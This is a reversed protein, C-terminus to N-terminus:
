FYSERPPGVIAQDGEFTLPFSIGSVFGEDHIDCDVFPSSFTDEFSRPSLIKWYSEITSFFLHKDEQSVFISDFLSASSIAKNTLLHINLSMMNDDSLGLNQFQRMSYRLFRLFNFHEFSVQLYKYHPYNWPIENEKCVFPKKFIREYYSHFDKDLNQKFKMNGIVYSIFKKYLTYGLGELIPKLKPIFSVIALVSDFQSPFYNGRPWLYEAISNCKVIDINYDDKKDLLQNSLLCFLKGLYMTDGKFAPLLLDMSPIECKVWISHVYYANRYQSTIKSLPSLGFTIGEFLLFAHLLQYVEYVKFSDFIEVANVIIDNINRTIPHKRFLNCCLNIDLRIDRYQSTAIYSFIHFFAARNAISVHQNTCFGYNSLLIGKGNFWTGKGFIPHLSLITPDSSIQVVPYFAILNVKNRVKFTGRNAAPVQANINCIVSPIQPMRVTPLISVQNKLIKSISLIDINISKMIAMALKYASFYDAFALMDIAPISYSKMVLLVKSDILEIVEKIIDVSLTHAEFLGKNIFGFVSSALCDLNFDKCSLSSIWLEPSKFDIANNINSIKMNKSDNIVMNLCCGLILRKNMSSSHVGGIVYPGTPFTKYIGDLQNIAGFIPLSKYLPAVMMVKKKICGNFLSKMNSFKSLSSAFYYNVLLSHLSESPIYYGLSSFTTLVLEDILSVNINTKSLVCRRMIQLYHMSLAALSNVDSISLMLDSLKILARMIESESIGSLLMRFFHEQKHRDVTFKIDLVESVSHFILSLLENFNQKGKWFLKNKIIDDLAGLDNNTLFIDRELYFPALGYICKTDIFHSPLNRLELSILKLHDILYKAILVPCLGKLPAHVLDHRDNAWYYIVKAMVEIDYSLNDVIVNFSPLVCTISSMPVFSFYDKLLFKIYEALHVKNLSDPISWEMGIVSINKYSPFRPLDINIFPFVEFCLGRRSFSQISSMGLINIMKRETSIFSSAILSCDDYSGYTSVKAIANLLSYILTNLDDSYLINKFIDLIYKYNGIFNRFLDDYSFRETNLWMIILWEQFCAARNVIGVDVNNADTFIISRVHKDEIFGIDIMLNLNQQPDINLKRYLAMNSYLRYQYRNNLLEASKKPIFDLKSNTNVPGLWSSLSNQHGFISNRHLKYILMLDSLESLILLDHPNLIDRSELIGPAYPENNLLLYLSSLLFVNTGSYQINKLIVMNESTVDLINLLQTNDSLCSVINRIGNCRVNLIDLFINYLIEIHKSSLSGMSYHLNNSLLTYIADYIPLVYGLKTATCINEISKLKDPDFSYELFQQNDFNKIIYGFYELFISILNFTAVDGDQCLDGQRFRGRAQDIVLIENTTEYYQAFSMKSNLINLRIDDISNNDALYLVHKMRVHIYLNMINKEGLYKLWNISLMNMIDSKINLGLVRVNNSLFLIFTTLIHSFYLCFKNFDNIAINGSHYGHLRIADLVRTGSMVLVVIHSISESPLLLKINTHFESIFLSDIVLKKLIDKCYKIDTRDISNVASIPNNFMSFMKHDLDLNSVLQNMSAYPFHIRMFDVTLLSQSAVNSIGLQVFHDIIFSALAYYSAGISAARFFALIFSEKRISWTYLLSELAFRELTFHFALFDTSPILITPYFRPAAAMYESILRNLYESLRYVNPSIEFEEKLTLISPIYVKPVVLMDEKFFYIMEFYAYAENLTRRGSKELLIEEQSIFAKIIIELDNEPMYDLYGDVIGFFKNLIEQETKMGVENFINALILINSLDSGLIIDASYSFLKPWVLVWWRQFLVARNVYRIKKDKFFAYTDQPNNYVEDGNVVGSIPLYSCPKGGVYNLKPLEIRMPLNSTDIEFNSPSETAFNINPVNCELIDTSSRVDLLDSNGINCIYPNLQQLSIKKWLSVSVSQQRMLSIDNSSPIDFHSLQFGYDFSPGIYKNILNHLKPKTHRMHLSIKNSCEEYTGYILHNSKMSSGQVILPHISNAFYGVLGSIIDFDIYEKNMANISLELQLRIHIARALDVDLGLASCIDLWIRRSCVDIHALPSNKLESYKLFDKLFLLFCFVMNCQALNFPYSFSILESSCSGSIQRPIVVELDSSYSSIPSILFNKLKYNVHQVLLNNDLESLCVFNLWREIIESSFESKYFNKLYSDNIVNNIIYRREELETTICLEKIDKFIYSFLSAALAVYENLSEIQATDSSIHTRFLELLNIGCIFSFCIDSLSSDDNNINIGLKESSYELSVRLLYIINLRSGSNRTFTSYAATYHLNEIHQNPELPIHNLAGISPSGFILKNSDFFSLVSHVSTVQSGGILQYISSILYDALLIPSAGLSPSNLYFSSYGFIMSIYKALLVQDLTFHSALINLRPIGITPFGRPSSAFYESVLRELFQQLNIFKKSYDISKIELSIYGPSGLLPIHKSIQRIISILRLDRYAIELTDPKPHLSNLAIDEDLLFYRAIEKFDDIKIQYPYGSCILHLEFGFIDINTSYGIKKLAPFLFEFKQFDSRLSFDGSYFKMKPQVDGWWVRFAQLRNVVQVTELNDMKKNPFKLIGSKSDYSAIDLALVFPIAGLESTDASPHIDLSGTESITVTSPRHTDRFWPLTSILALDFNNLRIVQDKMSSLSLFLNDISRQIALLRSRYSEHDASNSEMARNLLDQEVKLLQLKNLIDQFLLSNDTAASSTLIAPQVSMPLRSPLKNTRRFNYGSSLLDVWPRLFALNASYFLNNAFIYDVFQVLTNIGIINRMNSTDLSLLLNISDLITFPEVLELSEVRNRFALFTEAMNLLSDSIVRQCKQQYSSKFFDWPISYFYPCGEVTILNSNDGFFADISKRYNKLLFFREFKFYQHLANSFDGTDVNPLINSFKNLIFVLDSDYTVSENILYHFLKLMDNYSFDVQNCRYVYIYFYRLWSFAFKVRNVISESSCTPTLIEQSYDIQDSVSVQDIASQIDFLFFWGLNNHSMLIYDGSYLDSMVAAKDSGYISLASPLAVEYIIWQNAINLLIDGPLHNFDQVFHKMAFVYNNLSTSVVRQLILNSQETTIYPFLVLQKSCDYQFLRLNVFAQFLCARNIDMTSSVQEINLLKFDISTEIFYRGSGYAALPYTYFEKIFAELNADHHRSKFEDFLGQEYNLFFELLSKTDSTRQLGVASSLLSIDSNGSLDGNITNYLYSPSVHVFIGKSLLGEQFFSAAFVFRNQIYKPQSNFLYSFFFTNSVSLKKSSRTSLMQPIGSDASRPIVTTIFKPSSFEPKSYFNEHKVATTGTLSKLKMKEHKLFKSFLKEVSIPLAKPRFHLTAVIAEPWTKEPHSLRYKHAGCLEEISILQASPEIAIIHKNMIEMISCLRNVEWARLGNCDLFLRSLVRGVFDIMGIEHWISVTSSIPETVPVKHRMEVIDSKPGYYSLIEDKSLLPSKGSKKSDFVVECINGLKDEQMTDLSIDTSASIVASIVEVCQEQTRDQELLNLLIYVAAMAEDPAIKIQLESDLLDLLKFGDQRHSPFLHSSFSNDKPFKTLSFFDSIQYPTFLKANTDSRTKPLQLFEQCVKKSVKKILNSAQTNSEGLLDKNQTVAAIIYVFQVRTRMGSYFHLFIRLMLCSDQLSVHQDLVERLLAALPLALGTFQSPTIKIEFSKFASVAADFLSACESSERFPSIAMKPYYNGLQPNLNKYSVREKPDQWINHNPKPYFAVYRSMKAYKLDKKMSEKSSGPTTTDKMTSKDVKSKVVKSKKHKHSSKVKHKSEKKSKGSVDKISDVKGKHKKKKGHSRSTGLILFDPKPFPYESSNLELFSYEYIVGFCKSCSIKGNYKISFRGHLSLRILHIYIVLITFYTTSKLFTLVFM